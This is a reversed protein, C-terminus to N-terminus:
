VLWHQIFLMSRFALVASCTTSFVLFWYFWCVYFLRIVHNDLRGPCMKKSITWLTDLVTGLSSKVFGLIEAEAVIGQVTIDLPLEDGASHM